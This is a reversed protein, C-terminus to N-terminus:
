RVSAPKLRSVRLSVNWSENLLSLTHPAKTLIWSHTVKLSGQLGLSRAKKYFSPYCAVYCSSGVKNSSLKKIKSSVGYDQM